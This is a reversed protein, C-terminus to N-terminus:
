GTLRRYEKVLVVAEQGSARGGPFGREVETLDVSESFQNKAEQLQWNPITAGNKDVAELRFRSITTLSSPM